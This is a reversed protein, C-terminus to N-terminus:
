EIILPLQTGKNHVIYFNRKLTMFEIPIVSFMGLQIEKRIAHKSLISVGLGAEVATKVSETSALDLVINLNEPTLGHKYLYHNLVTRTGSGQERLVLPIKKLEEVTVSKKDHPFFGKKTVLQL